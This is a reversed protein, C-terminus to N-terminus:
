FGSANNIPKLRFTKYWHITFFIAIGIICISSRFPLDPYIDFLPIGNFFPVLTNWLIHMSIGPWLSHSKEYLFAFFCGLVFAGIELPGHFFMFAISSFLLAALFNLHKRLSAFLLGRFFIEEFFAQLSVITLFITEEALIHILDPSPKNQHVDAEIELQQDPILLILFMKIAQILVHFGVGWQIGKLCFELMNKKRLGLDRPNQKLTFLLMGLVVLQILFFSTWIVIPVFWAGSLSKIYNTTFYEIGFICFLAAVAFQVSVKHNLFFRNTHKTQAPFITPLCGIAVLSILYFFNEELNFLM